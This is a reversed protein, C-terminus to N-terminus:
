GRERSRHRVHKGCVTHADNQPPVASGIYIVLNKLFIPLFNSYWELLFLPLGTLILSLPSVLHFGTDVVCSCQMDDWDFITFLKLSQPAPHTFVLLCITRTAANALLTIVVWNAPIELAHIREFIKPQEQDTPQPQEKPQLLPLNDRKM